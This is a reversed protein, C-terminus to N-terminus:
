IKIGSTGEHIATRTLYLVKYIGDNTGLRLVQDNAQACNHLQSLQARQIDQDNIQLLTNVKVRSNILTRVIIGGPTEISM